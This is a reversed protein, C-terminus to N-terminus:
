EKNRSWSKVISDSSDSDLICLSCINFPKVEKACNIFMSIQTQCKINWLSGKEVKFNIQNLFEKM